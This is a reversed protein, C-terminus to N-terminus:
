SVAKLLKLVVRAGTSTHVARFVISRRNEFLLSLSSYGSMRVAIDSAAADVAAGTGSTSTASSNGSTSTTATDALIPAPASPTMPTASTAQQGGTTTAILGHSVESMHCLIFAVCVHVHSMDPSSAIVIVLWLLLSV